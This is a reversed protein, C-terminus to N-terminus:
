QGTGYVERCIVCPCRGGMSRYDQKALEALCWPDPIDPKIGISYTYGPRDVYRQLKDRIPQVQQQHWRMVGVFKAIEIRAEQITPSDSAPESTRRTEDMSEDILDLFLNTVMLLQDETLGALGPYEVNDSKPVYYGTDPDLKYFPGYGLLSMPDTHDSMNLGDGDEVWDATYQLTNIERTSLVSLIGGYRQAM